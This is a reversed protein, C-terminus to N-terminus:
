LLGSERKEEMGRFPKQRLAPQSIRAHLWSSLMASAFRARDYRM